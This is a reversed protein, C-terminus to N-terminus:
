CKGCSFALYRCMEGMYNCVILINRLSYHLCDSVWKMYQKPFGENNKCHGKAIIFEHYCICHVVENVFTNGLPLWGNLYSYQFVACVKMLYLTWYQPFCLLFCLCSEPTNQLKFSLIVLLTPRTQGTKVICPLTTNICIIQIKM